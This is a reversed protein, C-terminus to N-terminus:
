SILFFLFFILFFFFFWQTHIHSARTSQKLSMLFFFNYKSIFLIIEVCLLRHLIEICTTNTFVLLVFFFPPFCKTKQPIGSSFGLPLVRAVSSHVFFPFICFSTPFSNFEPFFFFFPPPHPHPPQSGTLSQLAGDEPPAILEVQKGWQLVKHINRHIGGRLHTYYVQHMMGHLTVFSWNHCYM